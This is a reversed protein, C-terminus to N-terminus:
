RAASSAHHPAIVPPVALAPLASPDRRPRNVLASRIMFFEGINEATLLGVLRDGAQVPMTLGKEVNAPAMAAELPDSPSLLAFERRMAVGVTTTEGSDRLAAFLQTHGLMGVVQGNSLVPFDQQSGALILRTADGLTNEPALVKFDTLMAERVTVGTFSAKM